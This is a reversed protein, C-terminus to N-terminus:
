ICAGEAGIAPQVPSAANRSARPASCHRHIFAQEHVKPLCGLLALNTRSLTGPKCWRQAQFMHAPPQQCGDAPLITSSAAKSRSSVALTPTGPEALGGCRRSRAARARQESPQTTKSWSAREGSGTQFLVLAAKARCGGKCSEM